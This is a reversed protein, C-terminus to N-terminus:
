CTAKTPKPALLNDVKLMLCEMQPPLQVLSIRLDQLCIKEEQRLHKRLAAPADWMNKVEDITIRYDHWKGLQNQLSELVLLLEPPLHLRPKIQNIVALNYFAKKITKRLDHLRKRSSLGERSLLAIEQFLNKFYNRLGKRLARLPLHELHSRAQACSERIGAISFEGQFEIFAIQQQQIRELLQGSFSHDLQLKEETSFLLAYQIQLDRLRGAEAFLPKIKKVAAKGPFHPDIGRLLQLFARLRKLSVRLAHITGKRCDQQVELFAFHVNTDLRDFCAILETKITKM